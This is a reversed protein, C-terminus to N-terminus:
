STSTAPIRYRVSAPASPWSGANDPAIEPYIRTGRWPGARHLARDARGRAPWAHDGFRSGLLRHFSRQARRRLSRQQLVGYKDLTLERVIAGLKELNLRANAGRM